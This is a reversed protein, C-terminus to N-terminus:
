KLDKMSALWWFLHTSLSALPSMRGATKRCITQHERWRETTRKNQVLTNTRLSPRSLWGVLWGPLLWTCLKHTWSCWQPPPTRRKTKTDSQRICHCAPILKGNSKSGFCPCSETKSRHNRLWGTTEDYLNSRGIATLVKSIYMSELNSVLLHSHSVGSIDTKPPNTQSEKAWINVRISCEQVLNHKPKKTTSCRLGLNSPLLGNLIEINDLLAAYGISSSSRSLHKKSHGCDGTKRRRSGLKQGSPTTSLPFNEYKGGHSDGLKDGNSSQTGIRRSTEESKRFLSNWYEPQWRDLKIPLFRYEVWCCAGFALINPGVSCKKLLGVSNEVRKKVQQSYSTELSANIEKLTNNQQSNSFFSTKPESKAIKRCCSSFTEKLKNQLHIEDRSVLSNPRRSFKGGSLGQIYTVIRSLLRARLTITSGFGPILISTSGEVKLRTFCIQWHNGQAYDFILGQDKWAHSIQKFCVLCIYGVVISDTQYAHVLHHSTTLSEHWSGRNILGARRQM